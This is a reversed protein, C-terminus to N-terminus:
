DPNGSQNVTMVPKIHGAIQPPISEYNKAVADPGEMVLIYHGVGWGPYAVTGIVAADDNGRVYTQRYATHDSTEERIPDKTKCIRFGLRSMYSSQYQQIEGISIPKDSHDLIYTLRSNMDPSVVKVTASDPQASENSDISVTWGVPTDAQVWSRVATPQWTEALTVYSGIIVLFILSVSVVRILSLRAPDSRVTSFYHFMM